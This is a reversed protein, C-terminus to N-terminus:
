KAELVAVRDALDKVHSCLVGIVSGTYVSVGDEAFAEPPLSDAEFGLYTKKTPDDPRKFTIARPIELNKPAVEAIDTKTSSHSTQIAGNVAWVETWRNGSKGCTKANDTTPYLAAANIDILETGAVFISVLATAGTHTGILLAGTDARLVADGASSGAFFGNPSSPSAVSVKTVASQQLTFIPQAINLNLAGGDLISFVITGNDKAVFISGTSTNNDATLPVSSGGATATIVVAGGDAITMVNTGNDQFNAINVTGSSNNVIVPVASSSTAYVADWTASGSNRNNIYTVVDSFNTNHGSATITAGSAFTNTVALATM